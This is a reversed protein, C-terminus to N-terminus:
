GMLDKLMRVGNLNIKFQDLRLARRIIYSPRLYFRMYAQKHLKRLQEPTINKLTMMPKKAGSTSVYIFNDWDDADLGDKKAMEFLETGPFPTCISFQVFDAGIETAFKITNDATELTEEPVGLMFYGVTLIGVKRTIKFANRVQDLTIGKKLIKLLHDNGSEVGYSIIYCGSEKMKTLLEEDVLNVRTECSWHINVKQEILKNCLEMTRERNMTFTDDYFLIEKIGREKLHKIEAIISDPSRARYTRGYIPKSCYICFFPCGFSTMMAMYPMKIGHPPYPRYKEFELMHYAPMPLSDLDEILERHATTVPLIGNKRYAIGKIQMLEKENIERLETRAKKVAAMLEPTTMEGEGVVVVDVEKVKELIELPMLTAHPGGMFIFADPIAAKIKRILEISKNASPTMATIGIVRSAHEKIIRIVDEDSYGYAPADILHVNFDAKELAAAVYALGLPPQPFSTKNPPNVLTVIM